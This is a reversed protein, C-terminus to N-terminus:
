FNDSVYIIKSGQPEFEISYSKLESLAKRLNDQKDEDCYLMLFGGGGAGAIKGGEAGAELAKSYWEDIQPTSIKSTLQSKYTWGQHLIKGMELINNDCLHARTVAALDVMKHHYELNNHISSEQGRLIDSSHRTIGTFFLILKSSLARKIEPRCIIPDVYVSEDSNFQIYNIGGYAAAYQDQKGMPHKLIEMEILCSEKALREASVHMGKYAYLANLVGVALSSSSGLGSGASDLPIDAMYVIEIGKDIGVIKLAERIINHELDDVHDVIETKSYSVRIQDDFKRNITLYVYLNIASNVVAGYKANQRYYGPLDTGGGAFSIRLPTRSIIM